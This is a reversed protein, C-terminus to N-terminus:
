GEQMLQGGLNYFVWYYLEDFLMIFLKLEVRGKILNFYVGIGYVLIFVNFNVVFFCGVEQIGGDIVVSFWNECNGNVVEVMFFVEQMGEMDFYVIFVNM